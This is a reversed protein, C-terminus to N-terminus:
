SRDFYSAFISSSNPVSVTEDMPMMSHRMRLSKSRIPSGSTSSSGASSDEPTLQGGSTIAKRHGNPRGNAEEQNNEEPGGNFVRALETKPSIGHVIEQHQTSDPFYSVGQQCRMKHYIPYPNEVGLNYRSCSISWLLNAATITELCDFWRLIKPSPGPNQVLFETKLSCYERELKMILEKLKAKSKEESISHWGQILNVANLLPTSKDSKCHLQYEKEWSFYDNTM